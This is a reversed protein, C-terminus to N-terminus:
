YFIGIYFGMTFFQSGCCSLTITDLDTYYHPTNYLSQVTSQNIKWHCPLCRQFDRFFPLYASIFVSETFGTKLLMESLVGCITKEIGM